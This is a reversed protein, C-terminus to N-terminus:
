MGLEDELVIAKLFPYARMHPKLEEATFVVKLIATQSPRDDWGLVEDLSYIDKAAEFHRPEFWRLVRSIPYLKIVAEFFIGIKKDYFGMGMIENNADVVRARWAESPSPIKGAFSQITKGADNRCIGDEPKPWYGTRIMETLVYLKGSRKLYEVEESCNKMSDAFHQDTIMDLIRQPTNWTKDHHMKWLLRPSTICAVDIIRQSVLDNFRRCGERMMYFFTDNRAQVVQYMFEESLYESEVQCIIDPREVVAELVIDLYNPTTSATIWSLAGPVSTVALQRMADSHLREPVEGFRQPNAKVWGFLASGTHMVEPIREFQQYALILKDWCHASDHGENM